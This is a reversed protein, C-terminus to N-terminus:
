GGGSGGGSGASAPAHLDPVPQGFKKCTFAVRGGFQVSYRTVVDLVRQYEESANRFAQRRTPMNYFLDEATITTGVVGACAKPEAKDGAKLPCVRGDLYRARYACPSDRTKSLITVHAVHTISALAEGRFGFTAISRLDEFNTLKSTTFRECAIPLDERRIGHGNDQIQLLHLGGGKVTVTIATSGADLSNELMEKIAASPRQVVEGAAIRNVVTEELKRIVNVPLAGSMSAM